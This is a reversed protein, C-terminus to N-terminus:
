AAGRPFVARRGDAVRARDAADAVTHHAILADIVSQRFRVCKRSYAVRPVRKADVLDWFTSRSAIGMRRAAEQATILPDHM